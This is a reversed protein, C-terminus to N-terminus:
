FQKFVKPFKEFLLENYINYYKQMKEHNFSVFANYLNDHIVFNTFMVFSEYVPLIFLFICAPYAM